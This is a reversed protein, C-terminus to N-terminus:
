GQGLSHELNLSKMWTKVIKNCVFNLLQIEQHFSTRSIFDVPNKVVIINNSMIASM